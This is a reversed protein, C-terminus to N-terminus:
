KENLFKIGVNKEFKNSIFGLSDEVSCKTNNITGHLTMEMNETEESSLSLM